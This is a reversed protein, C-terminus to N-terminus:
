GVTGDHRRHLYLRNGDPDAIAAVDCVPSHMTDQVITVGKARLEAVAAQVDPVALAVAGGGAGAREPEMTGIALALPRADFEAWGDMQSITDLGLTDRYFAVAKDLDSVHYFVFDVGRVQM